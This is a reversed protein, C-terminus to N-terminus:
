NKDLLNYWVKLKLAISNLVFIFIFNNIKM